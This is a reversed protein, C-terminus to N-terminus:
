EVVRKERARVCAHVSLMCASVHAARSSHPDVWIASVMLSSRPREENETLAWAGREAGRGGKTGETTSATGGDSMSEEAVVHVIVLFCM